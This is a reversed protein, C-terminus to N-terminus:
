HKMLVVAVLEEKGFKRGRIALSDPHSAFTIGLHRSGNEGEAFRDGLREISDLHRIVFCGEDCDLILREHM